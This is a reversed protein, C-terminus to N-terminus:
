KASARRRLEEFWNGVFQIQLDATSASDTKVMLFRKDDPSIDYGWSPAFGVPSGAYSGEFLMKPVGARFTGKTEVGVAMMKNGIVYFLERGSHAWRPFGGGDTSIQWKGALSPFSRVYVQTTGSEASNYAIWHGDPSLQPASANEIVTSDAGSPAGGRTMAFVHIEPGHQGVDYFVLGGSDPLWSGPVAPTQTTLLQQPPGSGDAVVWFIGNKEPEGLTRFAVRKGDKTWAPSINTFGYTLRNLTGRALDYVWVDWYDPSGAEISVAISTGNPSIAPSAYTQAPARLPEVKGMRDVWVMATKGEASTPNYVLDGLDSFSYNPFGRAASSAVGELVTSPTGKVQLQNLDFAVAMLSGRRTYVLHGSAAYQPNWGGELLVRIAGTRLNLVAMRSDDWSGTTRINFLLTKGDPLFYPWAHETEGKQHDPTTLAELKGGAASVRLLGGLHGIGKGLVITGDPGWAGSASPPADCITVSAGNAVPVKKLKGQSFYAIWNGDPSFFFAGAITISDDGSVIRAELQDTSRVYLHWPALLGGFRQLYALHSGDPSLTVRAIANGPPFSSAWRMVPRTAPQPTRTWGWIALAALVGLAFVLTWVAYSNRLLHWFSGSQPGSVNESKAAWQLEQAVDRGTQWREEPDKALCRRIVHDLALPTMPKIITIPEPEKDLIASAVSLRSKGEFARRGTLMEYLVSGLSFIDSRADVDKGEVQEPSMYQFTGVITGQETVPSSSAATVEAGTLVVAPKALGFDLLKAGAPTIMINAPKLDRHVVGSRHARDVADAVEAGIKVVQELPLSGKELRKELTEGEVCEMVLFDIGDQHGIDHLVCIHPHNLNSITKAEREFRQRRLPDSSLEPPLIKIAVTRGLRIDHARYVEGMGGAGLPSQIEYPGLKTGAALGM